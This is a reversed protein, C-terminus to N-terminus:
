APSKCTLDSTPLIGTLFYQNVASDVCSSGHGYGTHGDAEFSILLSHRIIRHLEEAWVYPTAPDRTTGIIIIPTTVIEKVVNQGPAAFFQCSLGSYALYPGFVPAAQAFKQALEKISKTSRPGRWDLCDIVFAADTENSSYTGDSRRQAYDDALSLLTTGDGKMAQALAVRLQPWGTSSDYLASAIGLVILSETVARGSESTLPSIATKEFLAIIQARGNEIPQALSCDTKLYCDSIFASLAMDFGIAQTLNQDESDVNPSVAGDLVMRGVKKPFLEAYLTGLYTGYSVGLFNLKKERLAARLIDMDRASDRTSYHLVNKTQLHCKEAYVRVDKLLTRLEKADDPKSDASYSADTERDTLCRIPVSQGVGRPDFGVIDYKQLLDPSFIYEANYAYEVGSAGPGGPNLVLSGIRGKQEIAGHRLLRLKFRGLALDKYDIPVQLYSCDFNDYCSSWDLSQREYQALTTPLDEIKPATFTGMFVFVIVALISINRKRQSIRPGPRKM